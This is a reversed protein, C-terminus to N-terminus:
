AGGGGTVLDVEVVVKETFVDGHREILARRRDDALFADYALRSPFRILHVEVPLSADEGDARRGRFLVEAGHDALLPLVEDEYASAATALAADAHGVFVITVADPVPQAYPPLIAEHAV